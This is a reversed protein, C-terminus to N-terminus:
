IEGCRPAAFDGGFDGGARPRFFAAMLVACVAACVFSVLFSAPWGYARVIRDFLANSAFVGLGATVMNVLGQAQNRLARPAVDDIYMQSGVILLGFILGHVVIGFFDCVACGMASSVFFFVNRLALTAMGLVMAWKYGFKRLIAPILLMFVIEGAQGLNLTATLYKFGSEKLYAACYVNYWQFPVMAFFILASFVAFQPNRFLAFAKFGLADALSVRGASGGAATAPLAFAFLGGALAVLSGAAFIWRTSDFEPIGFFNAAAISFVGSSVWGLTGFVRIRPFAERSSNAMAITATLAWTPMYFCMVGLLLVFLVAPDSTAAAGALLAACALNCLALVKEANFFRDAFMGFVPSVLTGFGMVLGCYVVWPEGGPLSRVYPVMPVFWVPLLMFQLFMMVPLKVANKM